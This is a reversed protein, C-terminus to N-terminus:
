NEGLGLNLLLLLRLLGELEVWALSCTAQGQLTAGARQVWAGGVRNAIYSPHAHTRALVPPPQLRLRGPRGQPHSMLSSPCAQCDTPEGAHESTASSSPGCTETLTPLSCHYRASSRNCIVPPNLHILTQLTLIHCPHACSHAHLVRPTAPGQCKTPSTVACAAPHPLQM